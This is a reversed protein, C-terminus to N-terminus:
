KKFLGRLTGADAYTVDDVRWDKGSKRLSVVVKEPQGSNTFSVTATAKDGDEQVDIAMNAIEWDQHGVFADGDLTPVDDRKAAAARDKLIMAALPPTFYRRVDAPKDIFVGTADKAADGVYHQYIGEVFSKATAPEAARAPMAVHAWLLAACGLAFDRRSITM